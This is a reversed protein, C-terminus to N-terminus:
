SIQASWIKIDVPSGLILVGHIGFFFQTCRFFIFNSKKPSQQVRLNMTANNYCSMSFVHIWQCIFLYLFSPICTHWVSHFIMWGHFFSIRRNAVVSISRSSMSFLGFSFFCLTSHHEGSPRPSPSINTLLYLSWKYCSYSRPVRIYLM